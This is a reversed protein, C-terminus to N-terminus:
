KEGSNKRDVAKKRNAYIVFGTNPNWTRVEHSEGQMKKAQELAQDRQHRLAQVEGQVMVTVSEFKERMLRLEQLEKL